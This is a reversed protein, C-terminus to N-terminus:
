EGQTIGVDCTGISVNRFALSLNADDAQLTGLMDYVELTPRDGYRLYATYVLSDNLTILRVLLDSGDHTVNVSHYTMTDDDSPEVWELESAPVEAFLQVIVAANLDTGEEDLARVKIVGTTIFAATEDWIFPNEAFGVTQLVFQMFAITRMAM